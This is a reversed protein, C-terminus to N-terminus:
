KQGALQKIGVCFLNRTATRRRNAMGARFRHQAPAPNNRERLPLASISINERPFASYGPLQANLPLIAKGEPM